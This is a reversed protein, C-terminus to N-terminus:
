NDLVVLGAGEANLTEQVADRESIRRLYAKLVTLASIDIDFRKTWHAIVFLYADAATFNNGTLYKKGDLQQNVLTFKRLLNKTTNERVATDHPKFLPSFSKHLETAVYTQWEMVRYRAMSGAEPMLDTRGAKDCIYQSVISQESLRQGDQFELVPVLGRPNIEYYDGGTETVHKILDVRERTFPLGTEQLLVHPAFSSAGPSFYLKM